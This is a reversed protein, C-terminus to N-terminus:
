WSQSNSTSESQKGTEKTELNQQGQVLQGELSEYRELGQNDNGVKAEKAILDEQDIRRFDTLINIRVNSENIESFLYDRVQYLTKLLYKSKEESNEFNKVVAENLCADIFNKLQTFQALTQENIKPTVSQVYKERQGPM